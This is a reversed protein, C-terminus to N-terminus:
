SHARGNGGGKAEIQIQRAEYEAVEDRRKTIWWIAMLAASGCVVIGPANELVRMTLVPLPGRGKLQDFGLYPVPYPTIFLVSTGGLEHEGYIHDFYDDPNERIRKRAEELMEERDGFLTAEYPCAEACAPVKGALQREYCMDCKVVDPVPRDYQYQPVNFPCALMCYRCGICRDAKWIVPGFDTKVMAGVPCVSACAPDSCHRCLSRITYDDKEVMCTRATTSLETVKDPDGQFGHIDMCARICRRCGQCQVMDFLLAKPKNKAAKM